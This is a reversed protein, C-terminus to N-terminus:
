EEGSMLDFAGGLVRELRGSRWGRIRDRVLPSPLERYHRVLRLRDPAAAGLLQEAERLAAARDAPARPPQAVVRVLAQQRRFGGERRPDPEEWVHLGGENDLLPCAGYGSISVVQRWSRGAGGGAELLVERKLRRAAAWREYMTAVRQAWADAEPGGQGGDGAADVLLYADWAADRELAGLAAELLHLSGALKAVLDAPVARPAAAGRRDTAPSALRELLQGAGQLGSEVRDINEILELVAFRGDDDWFDPGKM